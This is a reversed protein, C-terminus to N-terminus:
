KQLQFCLSSYYRWPFFGMEAILQTFFNFSTFLSDKAASIFIPFDPSALALNSAHEMMYSNM